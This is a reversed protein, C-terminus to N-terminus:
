WQTRLRSRLANSLPTAPRLNVEIRGSMEEHLLQYAEAISRIVGLREKGNLVQMSDVFIDSVRGRFVKEITRKRTESEVTPSSLFAEFAPQGDLLSAVNALEDRLSEAQGSSRALNLMATAYVKGIGVERDSGSSM